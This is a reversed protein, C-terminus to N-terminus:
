LNQDITLCCKFCHQEFLNLVIDADDTHWTWFQERDHKLDGEKEPEGFIPILHKAVKNFFEKAEKDGVAWASIITFKKSLFFNPTGLYTTTLDLELGNLIKHVGWNIILRDAQKLVEADNESTMKDLPQGWPLLVNKDELFIGKDLQYM